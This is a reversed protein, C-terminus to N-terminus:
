YNFEKCWFLHLAKKSRISCTGQCSNEYKFWLLPLFTSLSTWLNCTTAEKAQSCNGVNSEKLTDKGATANHMCLAVSYKQKGLFCCNTCMLPQLTREDRWKGYVMHTCHVVQTNNLYTDQTGNYNRMPLTPLPTWQWTVTDPTM